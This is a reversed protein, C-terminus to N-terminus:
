ISNLAESIDKIIENTDELGIYFRIYNKPLLDTESYYKSEINYRVLEPFILSEHGGWSAAMRFSNNNNCLKDCFGEIKKEDETNLIISFQGCPKKLYKNVLEKQDFNESHPYIVEKVKKNQEMFKVVKPTSESIYAMRIKLTRLGNIFLWSHFPSLVGGLLKFESEYIENIIDYSSCIIGGMANAHGGIYKTLSHIIIDIGWNAPNCNIPSSYSNDIITIIKNKKAISSIEELDQIDWTWSNPSELYIVKTNNQIKKRFNNPDRGDVYSLEIGYKPIIENFLKETGSYPSKVCIMHEGSKIQSLVATSIAAMGSSLAIASETKELAAIKKELIKTTPNTGRTYFPKNIENMATRMGEVKSFLFNSNSFIPPIAANFYEDRNEGLQNIIYKNM